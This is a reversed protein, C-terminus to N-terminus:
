ELKNTSVTQDTTLGSGDSMSKNTEDCQIICGKM